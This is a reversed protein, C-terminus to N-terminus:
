KYWGSTDNFLYEAVLNNGDRNWHGDNPIFLKDSFMKENGLMEKPPPALPGSRLKEWKIKSSETREILKNAEGATIFNNSPWFFYVKFNYLKSLTVIDHIISTLRHMMQLKSILTEYSKFVEVSRKNQYDVNVMSPLFNIRKSEYNSMNFMDSDWTWSDHKNCEWHLIRSISSIGFYIIDVSKGFSNCWQQLRLLSYENGTGPASINFVSHGSLKPLYYRKFQESLSDRKTVGHGFVFSDGLFLVHKKSLTIENIDSRSYYDNEWFEEVGSLNGLDDKCLYPIKYGKLYSYTGAPAFADWESHIHKEDRYTM